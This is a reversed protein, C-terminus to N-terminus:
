AMTDEVAVAHEHLRGSEYDRALERLTAAIPVSLIIGLFGALEAGIILGLIVLLPPVGVVRTVVLPYILNNEFLQVVTYIGIVILGLALGGSAFGM